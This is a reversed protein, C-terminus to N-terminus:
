RVSAASKSTELARVRECESERCAKWGVGVGIGMVGVGMMGVGMVSVRVIDLYM